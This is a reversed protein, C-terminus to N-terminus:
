NKIYIKKIFFTNNFLELYKGLREKTDDNVYNDTYSLLGLRDNIFNFIMKHYKLELQKQVELKKYLGDVKKYNYFTRVAQVSLIIVSNRM